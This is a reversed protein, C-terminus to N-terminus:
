RWADGWWRLPRRTEGRHGVPWGRGCAAPRGPGTRCVRRARPRSFPRRGCWRGCTPEASARRLRRPATHGSWGAGCCVAGCERLRRSGCRRAAAHACAPARVCRVSGSWQVGRRDVADQSPVAQVAQVPHVSGGALDDAAVFGLTGAFEDVDADLFEAVDGAASMPDHGALLGEGVPLGGGVLALHGGGREPPSRVGEEGSVADTSRTRVSLPEQERDRSNPCVKLAAPMAWLRVRGYRGCVFPLTSLSFRVRSSSHACRRGYELLVSRVSARASKRWM